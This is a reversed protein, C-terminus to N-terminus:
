SAYIEELSEELSKYLFEFGLSEIKKSSINNGTLLLEAREGLGLKMLFSPVNPLFQVRKLKKALIKTFEKNSVPKPAVGNIAGSLKNEMAFIFIRCLDDIHIWSMYQKGTGLAAGLGLKVPKALEFLAGGNKDLVLGIRVKSCPIGLKEIEDVENEWQQSLESLFGEGLPDTESYASGNDIKGYYAIGSASVYSEPKKQNKEISNKLLRTSGVRSDKLAQKRKPTWPKDIIGNGSLNIIHDFDEILSSDLEQNEPDWFIRPYKPKDNGVRRSLHSVSYSKETLLQSLRLGILGTGGAILVSKAM